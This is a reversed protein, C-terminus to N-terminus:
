RISCYVNCFMYMYNDLATRSLFFFSFFFFLFIGVLGTRWFVIIVILCVGVTVFIMNSLGDLDVHNTTLVRLSFCFLFLIVYYAFPFNYLLFNYFVFVFNYLLYLFNYFIFLSKYWVFSYSWIKWCLVQWIIGRYIKRM